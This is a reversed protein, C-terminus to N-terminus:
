SENALNKIFERIENGVSIIESELEAPTMRGIGSHVASFQLLRDATVLRINYNPGMESMIKEIYADATQDEKTFVVTYGDKVFQSGMGDKVLYADYVLILETKTYGVYNSLIDQLEERAKELSYDAIEKLNEWAYIINYGDIIMLHKQPAITKKGSKKSKEVSVVKPESYKRRKIPGFEKLMIAELDEDSLEYKKALHKVQPIIETGASATIGVDLHKYKEVEDWNVVFGAGGACFVSHPTNEEDATPDYDAAARVAEENHCQEYGDSVFSIKGQGRTYGLLEKTYDHLTSVPGRGCLLSTEEDSSEIEFQAYRTQLDSMARGVYLNPLELRFRYYPELLVCGGRMLGHRVARYTAQRFDGGETHKLHAKGAILTIKTDTLLAGIATGRHDKEYLHSLILRQWNVDLSYAQVKNDFILGSGKPLPEMLLQVEAYHRLPEFHGIGVAKAAIKEKYLIKGADLDCQIGIREKILHKLLDIQIEGMLRAEIQRLEENWYLGLSPEEEELQKLKPFYLLPDTGEPLCIRYCLVPELIPKGNHSEMGLGQGVYTNSLGLVACIEGAEVSDVQTFKEGSYLRIQGIKESFKKSDSTHYTIEDRASLKGRTIKMYTLRQSSIRQIKYVKAGFRDNEYAPELTYKALASLFFDIGILRLASGYFVPFLKRECIKAAIEEDEIPTGSLCSNLFDESILALRESLGAESEEQLFSICNPSLQKQIQTELQELKNTTIDTKNVFLFTPVKYYSLLQWLTRTHNQVGDTGSIILVAYDLLSLTRETEPSFDVHGPTDLLVFDCENYSFRAQKSFITIGREREISNTDLYTNKHDVRGLTRIRGSIYLMAESLTTKGADVHALIGICLKKPM